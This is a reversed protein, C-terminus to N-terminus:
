TQKQVLCSWGLYRKEGRRADFRFPRLQLINFLRGWEARIEQETMIPPGLEDEPEDANGMLVLGCARTGTVEALKRLYAPGAALRVAHYCGGDFFFDFLNEFAPPNTIDAVRFDVTVDAEEAQEKAQEIAAYSLDIATVEFGQQALWIASSGTGCGLELARRSTIRQEALVRQLESCPQGTDWVLDGEEYQSEWHIPKLVEKGVAM